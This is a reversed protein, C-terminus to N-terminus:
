RKESAKLGSRHGVLYQTQKGPSFLAPHSALLESWGTCLNPILVNIGGSWWVGEQCACVVKNKIHRGLIKTQPKVTNFNFM